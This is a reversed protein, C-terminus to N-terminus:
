KQKQRQSQEEAMRRWYKAEALKEKVYMCVMHKVMPTAYGLCFIRIDSIAKVIGEPLVKCLELKKIFDTEFRKAALAKDFTRPRKGSFLWQREKKFLVKETDTMAEYLSIYKEFEILSSCADLTFRQVERDIFQKQRKLYLQEFKKESVENARENMRIWLPIFAQERLEVWEKTLYKM